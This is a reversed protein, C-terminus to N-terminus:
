NNVYLVTELGTLRNAAPDLKAEIRYSAYQQWYDPGPNGTRTRTGNAVARSFAATEFVPYPRPRETDKPVDHWEPVSVRATGLSAGPASAPPKSTACAAIALACVGALIARTM